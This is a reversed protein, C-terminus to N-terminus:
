PLTLELGNTSGLFQPGNALLAQVTFEGSAPPLTFTFTGAGGCPGGGFVPLPFIVPLLPYVHLTCGGPLGVAAQSLGFVLLATAPASAGSIALTAQGGPLVCGPLSLTPACSGFGDCSQGYSAVGLQLPEYRFDDWYSEFAPRWWPAHMELQVETFPMGGPGSYVTTGDVRISAAEPTSTISFLHWGQTRDVATPGNTSGATFQYTGGAAPGLDYDWTGIGLPNAWLTLYNSSAVDAGTDYVWVSITGYAPVAFVHQVGAAKNVGATDYTRLELSQSGSHVQSISPFVVTGSNAHPTWFAELAAGEFGDDVACVQAPLAGALASGFCVSAVALARRSQM